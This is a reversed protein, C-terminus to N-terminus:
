KRSREFPNDQKSKNVSRELARACYQNMSLNGFDAAEKIAERLWPPVRLSLLVVPEPTEREAM